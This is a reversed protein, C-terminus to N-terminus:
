AAPKWKFANTNCASLLFSSSNFSLSLYVAVVGLIQVQALQLHVYYRMAFSVRDVWWCLPTSVLAVPTALFAFVLFLCLSLFVAVVGLIQVKAKCTCLLEGAAVGAWFCYSRGITKLLLSGPFYIFLHYKWFQKIKDSGIPNFSNSFTWKM